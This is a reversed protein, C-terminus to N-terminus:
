GGEVGAVLRCDVCIPFAMILTNQPARIRLIEYCEVPNQLNLACFLPDFLTLLEPEGHQSELEAHSQSIEWRPSWARERVAALDLRRDVVWGGFKVQRATRHVTCTSPPPTKFSTCKYSPLCISPSKFPISTHRSWPTIRGPM